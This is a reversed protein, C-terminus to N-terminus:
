RTRFATKWEEGEKMRILNYAGRLDMATFIKAHSLRDRLETINPLPHRDKITIDNLKRYDICPRLKGNKKEVFLLPYGAPSKSERIFGKKIMKDLYDRLVELEKESLSYIPGFGPEKKEQLIIEHDWEQHKPLAEPGTEEEFLRRFQEYEQPIDPTVRKELVRVGPKELANTSNVMMPQRTPKSAVNGKTTMEDVMLRRQHTPPSGSTHNHDDFSLKRHQWDIHPNAERLWPLGLIVDHVATGFVDLVISGQHGQIEYKASVEHDITSNRPM